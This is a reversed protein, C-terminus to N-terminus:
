NILSSSTIQWLLSNCLFPLPFRKQPARIPPPFLYNYFYQPFAPSNQGAWKCSSSWYPPAEPLTTSRVWAKHLIIYRRLQLPGAIEPAHPLGLYMKGLLSWVQEFHIKGAGGYPCWNRRSSYVFFFATRVHPLIKGLGASWDPFPRSSCRLMIM